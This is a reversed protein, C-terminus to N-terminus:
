RGFPTALTATASLLEDKPFGVFSNKIHVISAIRRKALAVVMSVGGWGSDFIYLSDYPKSPGAVGAEALVKSSIKVKKGDATTVIM